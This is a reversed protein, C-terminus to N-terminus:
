NKCGVREVAQGGTQESARGSPWAERTSMHQRNTHRPQRSHRDAISALEQRGAQWSGYRPPPSNHLWDNPKVYPMRVNLCIGEGGRLVSSNPKRTAWTSQRHTKRSASEQISLDLSLCGGWRYLMLVNQHNKHLWLHTTRTSKKHQARQSSM